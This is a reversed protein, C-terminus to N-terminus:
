SPVLEPFRGALDIVGVTEVVVVLMDTSAVLRHEEGQDWLVLTGPGVERSPVHGAEAVGEGSVVAVVQRRTLGRGIAGGPSVHAIRVQSEGLVGPLLDIVVGDGAARDTPVSPLAFLRM